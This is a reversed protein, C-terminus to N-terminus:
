SVTMSSIPAKIGECIYDIKGLINHEILTRKGGFIMALQLQRGLYISRSIQGKWKWYAIREWWRQRNSL